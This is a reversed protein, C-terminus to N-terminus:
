SNYSLVITVLLPLLSETRGSHGLSGRSYSMSAAHIDGSVSAALNFETIMQM